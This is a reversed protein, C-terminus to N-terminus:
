PGFTYAHATRGNVITRRLSARVLEAQNRNGLIQLAEVDALTVKGSSPLQGAALKYTGQIYSTLQQSTNQQLITMKM